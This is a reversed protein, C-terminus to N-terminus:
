SLSTATVVRYYAQMEHGGFARDIRLVAGVPFDYYQVVADSAMIKPLKAVDFGHDKVVTHKPVLSHRVIPFCCFRITLFQIRKSDACERRTFSTPGGMSVCVVSRSAHVSNELIARAAKVGVKEEAHIYVVCKDSRVVVDGKVIADLPSMACAVGKCGRDILMIQTSNMVRQLVAMGNGSVGAHYTELKALFASSDM